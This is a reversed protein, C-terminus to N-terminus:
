LNATLAIPIESDRRVLKAALLKSRLSFAAPQRLLLGIRSPALLIFLASPLCGFFIDEFRLTFDFSRCDSDVRPGFSRDSFAPCAMQPPIKPKATM